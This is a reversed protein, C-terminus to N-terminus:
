RAGWSQVLDLNLSAWYFQMKVEEPWGCLKVIFECFEACARENVLGRSLNKVAKNSSKRSRPCRLQKRLAEMHGVLM